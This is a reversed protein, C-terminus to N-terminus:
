AGLRFQPISATRLEESPNSCRLCVVYFGSTRIPRACHPSAVYQSSTSQRATPSNKHCLSASVALRTTLYCTSFQPGRVHPSSGVELEEGGHYGLHDGCMRPHDGGRAAATPTWSTTGACAPIIGDEIEDALALLPPGRVHPSSGMAWLVLVQAVTHDGCMRPHDGINGNREANAPTTGACAPIIGRFGRTAAIVRLPGRVHPSSGRASSYIPAPFFHDGCMRPHDREHRPRQRDNATTGACAPIIGRDFVNEVCQGPPGRVHPSSGALESDESASAGHDGCM